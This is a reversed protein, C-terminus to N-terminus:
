RPPRTVLGPCSPAAAAVLHNAPTQSASGSVTAAPPGGHPWATHSAAAGEVGRCLVGCAGAHERQVRAAASQGRSESPQHSTVDIDVNSVKMSPWLWGPLPSLCHSHLPLCLLCLLCLPCPHPTRRQGPLWQM